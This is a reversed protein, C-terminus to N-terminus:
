VIGAHGGCGSVCGKGGEGLDLGVGGDGDGPTLGGCQELDGCLEFEGGVFQRLDELAGVDDGEGASGALELVHAFFDDGSALLDGAEGGKGLDRLIAFGFGFRTKASGDGDQLTD